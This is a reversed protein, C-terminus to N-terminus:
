LIEIMAKARMLCLDETSGYAKGLVESQTFGYAEGNGTRLWLVIQASYRGTFFNRKVKGIKVQRNQTKM